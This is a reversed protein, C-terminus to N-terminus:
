GGAKLVRIAERHSDMPDLTRMQLKAAMEEIEEIRAHLLELDRGRPLKRTVREDIQRLEKRLERIEQEVACTNPSPTVAAPRPPMMWLALTVAIPMCVLAMAFPTLMCFDRLKM